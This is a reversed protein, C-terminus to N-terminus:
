DDSDSGSISSNRASDSGGWWYSVSIGTSCSRVYHWWGIPIYLMEGEELICEVYPIESLGPYTDDWDESPSLEIAAFDIRSTNSMDITKHGEVDSTSETQATEAYRNAPLDERDLNINPAPETSSRPFLRHSYKPAYLRVYKKGVIQALLNHYPDHHLPSITWPPGFWINQLASGSPISTARLSSLAVPSDPDSPPPSVHVYDPTLLSRRLSPIQDFITHQALYGTQPGKSSSSSPTQIVYTNLFERFPMIKQGWDEDTYSRGVEVPVLRRGGLTQYLWYTESKWKRLAPWDEMADTLVLPTREDFMHMRFRELSPSPLRPVPYSIRPLVTTLSPLAHQALVEVDQVKRRKKPRLAIESDLESDGSDDIDWSSGQAQDKDLSLQLQRFLEHITHERGLGGAMILAMDLLSIVDDLWKGENLGELAKPKKGKTIESALNEDILTVAKAISTDTYLRFWCQKVDKFPFVHLKENALKHLSEANSMIDLNDVNCEHIEDDAAFNGLEVIISQCLFEM